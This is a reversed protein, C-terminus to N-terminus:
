SAPKWEAAKVVVYAYHGYGAANVNNRELDVGIRTTATHCGQPVESFVKRFRQM